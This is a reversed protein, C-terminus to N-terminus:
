PTLAYSRSPRLKPPYSAQGRSSFPSPHSTLTPRTAACFRWPMEDSPQAPCGASPRERSPRRPHICRTTGQIREGSRGNPVSDDVLPSNSERPLWLNHITLFFLHANPHHRCASTYLRLCHISRLIAFRFTSLSLDCRCCSGAGEHSRDASATVGKSEAVPSSAVRVVM